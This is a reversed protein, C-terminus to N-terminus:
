VIIRSKEAIDHFARWLLAATKGPRRDGVSKGDITIVPIAITTASSLFAEAAQLAEERTFPREEIRLGLRKAVDFHAARTM